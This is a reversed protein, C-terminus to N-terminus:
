NNLLSELFEGVRGICNNWSVPAPDHRDLNVGHLEAIMCEVFPKLTVPGSVVNPLSLVQSHQQKTAAVIRTGSAYQDAIVGSAYRGSPAATWCWLMDCAQLRRNLTQTPLFRQEFRFNDLNVSQLGQLDSVLRPSDLRWPSTLLNIFWQNRRAEPLLLELVELYQREFKLFGNTGVLVRDTPLKFEERLLRRDELKQPTWAPHPFYLSPLENHPIMGECMSIFGSASKFSDCIVSHAFVVVPARCSALLSAIENDEFLENHYQLLVIDARHNSSLREVTAMAIGIQRASLQLNKAFLAVGCEHARTTVIQLVRM